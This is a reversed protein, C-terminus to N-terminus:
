RSRLPCPPPAFLTPPNPNASPPSFPPRAREGGGGRPPPTFLPSVHERWDAIRLGCDAITEKQRRFLMAIVEYHRAAPRRAGRDGRRGLVEEGRRRHGRRGM